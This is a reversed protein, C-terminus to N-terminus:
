GVTDQLTENIFKREEEECRRRTLQAGKKGLM